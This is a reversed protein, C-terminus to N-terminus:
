EQSAKCFDVMEQLSMSNIDKRMSRITEVAWENEGNAEALLIYLKYATESVDPQEKLLILVLKLTQMSETVNNDFCNEPIDNGYLRRIANKKEDMMREGNWSCLNAMRLFANGAANFGDNFTKKCAETFSFLTENFCDQKEDASKERIEIIMQEFMDDTQEKHPPPNLRDTNIYMTLGGDPDPLVKVPCQSKEEPKEEPEEKEESEEEDEPWERSFNEAFKAAYSGDPAVIQVNPCGVFAMEDIEEVSAPIIVKELSECGAFAGEGIFVTGEKLEVRKLNKCWEFAVPPLIEVSGSVTASEIGSYAFCSPALISISDPVVLEDAASGLFAYTQVAETERPFVIKERGSPYRMLITLKRGNEDDGNAMLVGDSSYFDGQGNVHINELGNCGLLIAEYDEEGYGQWEVNAPITIGKIFDCGLFAYKGISRITNPVVVNEDNGRYGFLCKEYMYVDFDESIGLEKKNRKDWDDLTEDFLSVPKNILEEKKQEEIKEDKLSFNWEIKGEKLIYSGLNVAGTEINLTRCHPQFEMQALRFGNRDIDDYKEFFADLSEALFHWQKKTCHMGTEEAIVEGNNYHYHEQDGAEEESYAEVECDLLFSKERYSRDNLAKLIDNKEGELEGCEFAEIEEDSFLDTNVKEMLRALSVGMAELGWKCSGSYYLTCVGNEESWYTNNIEYAPQTALFLRCAKESGRVHTEFECINAM